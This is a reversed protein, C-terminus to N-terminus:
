LDEVWEHHTNQGDIRRGLGSHDGHYVPRRQSDSAVRHTDTMVGLHGMKDPRDSSSRRRSYWSFIAFGLQCWRGEERRGLQACDVESVDNGHREATAAM